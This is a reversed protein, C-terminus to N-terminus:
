NDNVLTTDLRRRSVQCMFELSCHKSTIKITKLSVGKHDMSTWGTVTKVFFLWRIELKCCYNNSPTNTVEQVIKKYNGSTAKIVVM